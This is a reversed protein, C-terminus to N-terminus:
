EDFVFTSEAYFRLQRQAVKARIWEDLWANKAALSGPEALPALPLNIRLARRAILHRTIGAPLPAGIRALEVIESPEHRAFVVLAAVGEHQPLLADLDDSAVRFVQAAARIADVMANLCAVREHLTGEGRIVHIGDAPRAVFALAERRALLARARVADAPETALGPVAELAAGFTWPEGGVVLHHWCDLAVDAGHYDVVQVAIHPLAMRRFATVRNAGDLVVFREDGDGIAAVVPPNRLVQEAHLREALPESRQTDHREHLLLAAVPVIRLDPLAPPATAPTASRM